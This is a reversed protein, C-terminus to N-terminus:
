MLSSDFSAHFAYGLQGYSIDTLNLMANWIGDEDAHIEASASSRSLPDVSRAASKTKTTAMDTTLPSISFSSSLSESIHCIAISRM